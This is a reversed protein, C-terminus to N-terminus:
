AIKAMGGFLLKHGNIGPYSNDYKYLYLINGATRGQLMNGTVDNERGYFPTLNEVMFPLGCYLEGSGTGNNIISIIGTIFLTEGIVTYRSTATYSTITGVTSLIMLTWDKWMGGIEITRLADIKSELEAIKRMLQIPDLQGAM